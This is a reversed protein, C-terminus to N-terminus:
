NFIYPAQNNLEHYNFNNKISNSNFYQKNKNNNNININSNISNSQQNYNGKNMILDNLIDPAYSNNNNSNIYGLNNQTGSNYNYNNFNNNNSYGSSANITSYQDYIYPNNNHNLYKSKNQEIKTFNTYNAINSLNSLNSNNQKSRQSYKNFMDNVNNTNSNYYNFNQLDSGIIHNSNYNIGQLNNSFQKNKALSASINGSINSSGNERLYLYEEYSMSPPYGLLSSSNGNSNSNLNNKTTSPFNLYDAPSSSKSEKKFHSKLRSFYPEQLLEKSSIRKSPNYVLMKILINYAHDSLGPVAEKIGLGKFSPFKMNLKNILKYGEPWDDFEPTGLVKIIKGMQDTENSGPFLPKLTFLECFIAALAFIDVSHNYHNSKLVCEPARYWRTCVYDTLPVVGSTSPINERALGFDAIKVQILEDKGEHYNVLINEPKLDRHIYNNSHIYTLGSLVQETIIKVTNESLKKNKAKTKEILNYLNMEMYEFVLYVNSNNERIVEKLKVVSSCNNLKSLAKVECLQLCEKWTNIKSKLAKIAVTENTTLETAKFVNGYTGDGVKELLKYKEM